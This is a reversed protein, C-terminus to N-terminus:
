RLLAEALKLAKERSGVTEGAGEGHKDDVPRFWGVYYTGDAHKSITLEEVIAKEPQAPMTQEAPIGPAHM